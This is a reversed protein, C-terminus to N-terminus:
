EKRGWPELTPPTFLVWLTDPEQTSLSATKGKGAQYLIIGSFVLSGSCCLGLMAEEAAVACDCNIGHGLSQPLLGTSLSTGVERAQWGRTGRPQWCPAAQALGIM